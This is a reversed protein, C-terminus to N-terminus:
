YDKNFIYDINFNKAILFIIIIVQFTNTLYPLFIIKLIIYVYLPSNKLYPVIVKKYKGNM